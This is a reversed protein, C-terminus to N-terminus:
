QSINDTQLPSCQLQAGHALLGSVLPSWKSPSMTYQRSRRGFPANQKEGSSSMTQSQELFPEFEELVSQCEAPALFDDIVYVRPQDSIQIPARHQKAPQLIKQLPANM